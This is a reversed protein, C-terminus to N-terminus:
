PESPSAPLSAVSAELSRDWPRFYEITRILALPDDQNVLRHYLEIAEEAESDTLLRGRREVTYGAEKALTVIAARRRAEEPAPLSAVADLLSYFAAFVTEEDYHPNGNHGRVIASIVDTMREGVKTHWHMPDPCHHAEIRALLEDGERSAKSVDPATSLADAAELLSHILGTTLRKSARHQIFSAAERILGALEADTPLNAM